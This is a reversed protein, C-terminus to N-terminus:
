DFIDPHPKKVYGHDPNTTYFGAFNKFLDSPWTERLQKFYDTGINSLLYVGYGFSSLKDKILVILIDSQVMTNM